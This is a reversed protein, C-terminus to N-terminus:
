TGGECDSQSMEEEAFEMERALSELQQMESLSQTASNQQMEESAQQLDESAQQTDGQQLSKSAQQMAEGLDEASSNQLSEGINQLDEALQQQESESLEGSQLKNQLDQLRQQASQMDGAAMDDLIRSAEGTNLKKDRANALAEQLSGVESSEALERHMAKIEDTLEAAEKMAERKGLKGRALDKGLSEIRGAFRETRELNAEKAKKEIERALDELEKGEQKLAEREHMEHETAFLNFQPMFWLAALIIGFAPVFLSARPFLPGTVRRPDLDDCHQAADALLAPLMEGRQPPENAFVVASGLRERLGLAEDAAHAAQFDSIHGWLGWVIGVVASAALPVFSYWLPWYDLRMKFLLGTKGAAILLLTPIAGVVLCVVLRRVLVCARM